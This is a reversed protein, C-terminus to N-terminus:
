FKLGAKRAAEALAKVNGHYKYGGRDFVVETVGKKTCKEAILKGVEEAIFGKEAKSKELKRSDVAAIVKNDEDDIVQAYVYRLSRFVNLRPKQATGKVKGRVRSHRKKRLDNKSINKSRMFEFFCFILAGYFIVSNIM